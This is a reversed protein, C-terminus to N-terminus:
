RYARRLRLGALCNRPFIIVFILSVDRVPQHHRIVLTAYQRSIRGAFTGIILIIIIRARRHIHPQRDARVTEIREGVQCRQFAAFRKKFLDFVRVGVRSVKAQRFLSQYPRHVDQGRAIAYIPPITCQAALETSRIRLASSVAQTDRHATVGLLM